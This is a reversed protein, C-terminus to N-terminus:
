ALVVRFTHTSTFVLSISCVQNEGPRCDEPQVENQQNEQEYKQCPAERWRVRQGYLATNQLQSGRGFHARIRPSEISFPYPKEEQVKKPPNSASTKAAPIHPKTNGVTVTVRILVWRDNKKVAHPKSMHFDTRDPSCLQAIM